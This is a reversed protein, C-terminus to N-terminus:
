PAECSLVDCHQTVAAALALSDDAAQVLEAPRGELARHCPAIHVLQGTSTAVAASPQSATIPSAKSKKNHQLALKVM